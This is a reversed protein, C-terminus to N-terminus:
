DFELRIQKGPEKSHEDNEDTEPQDEIPIEEDPIELAQYEDSPEEENSDNKKATDEVTDEESVESEDIQEYESTLEDEPEYPIPEQWLIVDVPHDSLRRGKARYSKVGIFEAVNIIENERIKGNKERFSLELRPLWDLSVEVLRSEKHDNIFNVAKDSLEINFRKLYYSGTNGDFYVVSVILKPDYKLIFFM